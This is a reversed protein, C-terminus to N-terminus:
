CAIVPIGLCSTPLVGNHLRRDCIACPAVCLGHSTCLSIALRISVLVSSTFELPLVAALAHGDTPSAHPAPPSMIIHAATQCTLAEPHLESKLYVTGVYIYTSYLVVLFTVGKHPVFYLFYFPGIINATM